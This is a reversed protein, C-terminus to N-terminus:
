ATASSSATGPARRSSAFPRSELLPASGSVFLRVGACRRPSLEQALLRTYYTPVGMMRRAAAGRPGRRCRVTAPVAPARRCLARHQLRVFLGHVHYLPLVHLLVDTASFGWAEVLTLANSALNRHSLMAGKARGTTGSTYLLAALDDDSVSAIAPEPSEEELAEVLDGM